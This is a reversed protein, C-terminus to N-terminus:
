EAAAKTYDQFLAELHAEVEEQSYRVPNDRAAQIEARLRALNAERQRLLTLADELVDEPTVGEGRREVEGRLFDANQDSLNVTFQEDRM